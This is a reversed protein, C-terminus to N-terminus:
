GRQGDHHDVVVFEQNRMYDRVEDYSFVQHDPHNDIGVDLRKGKSPLSGHTHGHLHWAGHHATNWTEFPYHCMVIKVGDIRIEKYDRIDEVHSLNSDAILKWLRSDCHNGKLFTIRGNLQKIIDLVPQLKNKGAFAFDGLHYVEDVRGVRSNWRSILEETQEEFTWPRNCYEIVNKHFFHLDSSFFVSM